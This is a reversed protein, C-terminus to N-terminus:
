KDLWEMITNYAMGYSYNKINVLYRALVLDIALKRNDSL